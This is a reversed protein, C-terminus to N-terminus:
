VWSSFLVGELAPQQRGGAAEQMEALHRRLAQLEESPIQRIVEDTAKDIVQIITDGTGEELKFHLQRHTQQVLQELGEVLEEAASAEIAPQAQPARAAPDGPRGAQVASQQPVANVAAPRSAQASPDAMPGPSKPVENIM